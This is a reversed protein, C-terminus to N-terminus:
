HPSCAGAYLKEYEHLMRSLLFREEV